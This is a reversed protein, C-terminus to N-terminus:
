ILKMLGNKIDLYMTNVDEFWEYFVQEILDYQDNYEIKDYDLYNLDIDLENAINAIKNLDETGIFNLDICDMITKITVINEFKCLLEYM